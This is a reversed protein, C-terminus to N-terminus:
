PICNTGSFERGLSAPCTMTMTERQWWKKLPLSATLKLSIEIYVRYLPYKHTKEDGLIGLHVGIFVMPLGNNNNNNNNNNKVFIKLFVGPIGQHIRKKSVHSLVRPQSSRYTSNTYSFGAISKMYSDEKSASKKRALPELGHFAIHHVVM